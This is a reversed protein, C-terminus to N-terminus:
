KPKGVDGGQPDPHTHNGLSIGGAVVDNQVNLPGLMTCDGGASGKGQNLSGNIVVNGNVTFTPTTLTTNGTVDITASGGVKATLNGGTDLTTNGANKVDINGAPDINISAVGGAQEIHINVKKGTNRKIKWKKDFDKGTLDEHAPNGGFRVYAGSPHYIEFNGDKDITHYVDSAHRYIMRNEQKFMLESAVPHLFGTVVPLDDFYQVTAIIDRTGTNGGKAFPDGSPLDPKALDNLGTNTSASSSQVRVNRMPRGTKTFVLDVTHSEWHIGVVKALAGSKM